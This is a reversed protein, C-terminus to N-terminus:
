SLNCWLICWCASLNFDCWEGSFLTCILLTCSQCRIGSWTETNVLTSAIVISILGFDTISWVFGSIPEQSSVSLMENKILESINVVLHSSSIHSWLIEFNGGFLVVSSLERLVLKFFVCLSQGLNQNVISTYTILQFNGKNYKLKVLYM